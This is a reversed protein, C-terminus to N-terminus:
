DKHRLYDDLNLQEVLNRYARPIDMEAERIANRYKAWRKQVMISQYEGDRFCPNGRVYHLHGMDRRPIAYLRRVKRGTQDIALILCGSRHMLRCAQSHTIGYYLTVDAATAWRRRFDLLEEETRIFIVEAYPEM